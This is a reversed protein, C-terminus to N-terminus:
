LTVIVVVIPDEKVDPVTLLRCHRTWICFNITLDKLGEHLKAMHSVPNPIRFYDDGATRVFRIVGGHVQEEVENDVDIPAVEIEDVHLKPYTIEVGTKGFVKM